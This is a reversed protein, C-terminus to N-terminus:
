VRVRRRNLGAYAATLAVALLGLWGADPEPVLTFEVTLSPRRTLIAYESSAFGRKSSHNADNISEDGLLIWGFDSAPDSLWQNIDAVMSPSSESSLSFLGLDGGHTIGAPPDTVIYAGAGLAGLAPWFGPGNAVFPNLTPPSGHLSPDYSTHLWTADGQTAPAGSGAGTGGFDSDSTGEGWARELTPVRVLWFPRSSQNDKKPVDLIYLNLTARTVIANDPIGTLDFRL